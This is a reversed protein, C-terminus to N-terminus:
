QSINNENNCRIEYLYIDWKDNENNEYKNKLILKQYKKTDIQHSSIIYDTNLKCLENISFFLKHVTIGKQYFDKMSPIGMLYVKSGWNDYNNDKPTDKLFEKIVNRFKKKYSLPYNTTYGDVIYLGNYLSIAPELGFNVFRINNINKFESKIKQFTNPIYYNNFTEFTQQKHNLFEKTSFEHLSQITIFLMIFWTTYKLKKTIIQFSITLLIAWIFPQLFALRSINFEKLLPIYTILNKGCECISFMTFLAFLIQLIFLLIFSKNEKTFLYILLTCITLLPMSYLQSLTESWIDIAYGVIILLWIIMSENKNFATKKLSLFIAIIVVPILYPMQLDILHQHHGNLFFVHGTRFSTLFDYTFFKDFEIRHSTFGHDIFMSIILRYEQILFVLGLIFIALFFRSNFNKQKFTDWLLYIGALIIYFIYLFIFSAYLPTLILILWDFFKDKKNKINLLSYTVLPLLPITLGESSFIPLLAFYLSGTLIILNKNKTNKVIYKDLFIYMSFYATLHILIQNIIYATKADFFYYLWLMINYESGYTSRPLGNMMNPIIENNDAFIKGSHALIKLNPITSDLIDFISIYLPELFLPLLYLLVIFLGFYFTYHKKDINISM